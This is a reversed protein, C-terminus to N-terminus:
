TKQLVGGAARCGGAHRRGKPGLQGRPLASRAPGPPPLLAGCAPFSMEKRRHKGTPNGSIELFVTQFSFFITFAPLNASTAPLSQLTNPNASSRIATNM